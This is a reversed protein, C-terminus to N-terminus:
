VQKREFNMQLCMTSNATTPNVLFQFLAGEIQSMSSAFKITKKVPPIERNYPESMYVCMCM